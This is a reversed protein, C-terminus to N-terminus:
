LVAVVSVLAIFNEAFIRFYISNLVIGILAAISTFHAAFAYCARGTSEPVSLLQKRRSVKVLPPIGSKAAYKREIITTKM